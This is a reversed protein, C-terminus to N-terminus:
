NEYEEEYKTIICQMVDLLLHHPYGIQLQSGEGIQPHFSKRLIRMANNLMYFSASETPSLGGHLLPVIHSIETDGYSECLFRLAQCRPDYYRKTDSFKEKLYQDCIFGSAGFGQETVRQEKQEQVYKLYQQIADSIQKRTYWKEKPYTILMKSTLADWVTRLIMFSALKCPKDNGFKKDVNWLNGHISDGLSKCGEFPNSMKGYLRMRDKESEVQILDPGYDKYYKVLFDYKHQQGDDDDQWGYDNYKGYFPIPIPRWGLDQSETPFNVSYNNPNQVLIINVTEDDARIPLQSIGCTKNWSGM